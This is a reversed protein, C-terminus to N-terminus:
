RCGHLDFGEEETKQGSRWKGSSEIITSNDLLTVDYTSVAFRQPSLRVAALSRKSGKGGLHHSIHKWDLLTLSWILKTWPIGSFILESAPDILPSRMTRRM